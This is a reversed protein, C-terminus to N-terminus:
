RPLQFKSSSIIDCELECSLHSQFALHVRRTTTMGLTLWYDKRLITQVAKFSLYFSWAAVLSHLARNESLTEKTGEFFIVKNRRPYEYAADVKTIGPWVSEIKKM